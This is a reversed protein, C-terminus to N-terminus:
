CCRSWPERDGRAPCGVICLARQGCDRTIVAEGRMSHRRVVPRHRATVSAAAFSTPGTSWSAVFAPRLRTVAIGFRVAAVPAAPASSRWSGGGLALVSTDTAVATSGDAHRVPAKRGRGLRALSAAAQFDRGHRSACGRVCCRRRRM